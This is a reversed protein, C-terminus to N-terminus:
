SLESGMLLNGVVSKKCIPNGLEPVLLVGNSVSKLKAVNIQSQLIPGLTVLDLGMIEKPYTICGLGCPCIILSNHPTQIGKNSRM